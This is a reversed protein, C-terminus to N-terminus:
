STGTRSCCGSLRLEVTDDLNVIEDFVMLLDTRQECSKRSNPADRREDEKPRVNRLVAGNERHEDIVKTGAETIGDLLSFLENARM